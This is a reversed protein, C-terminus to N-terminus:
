LKYILKIRAGNTVLNARATKKNFIRQNQILSFSQTNAPRYSYQQNNKHM